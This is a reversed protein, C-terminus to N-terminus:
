LHKCANQNNTCPSLKCWHLLPLAPSVVIWQLIETTSILGILIIPSSEMTTFDDMVSEGMSVLIALQAKQNSNKKTETNAPGKKLMEISPLVM